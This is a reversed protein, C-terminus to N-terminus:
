WFTRPNFFKHNYIVSLLRYLIFIYGFFIIYQFFLNFRWIMFIDLTILIYVFVSYFLLLPPHM